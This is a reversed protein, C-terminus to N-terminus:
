GSNMWQANLYSRAGGGDATAMTATSRAVPGFAIVEIM